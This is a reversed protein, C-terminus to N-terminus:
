PGARGATGGAGSEERHADVVVLVDYTGDGGLLGGLVLVEDPALRASSALEQRLALPVQVVVDVGAGPVRVCSEHLPRLLETHKLTIVVDISTSPDLRARLELATGEETTAVCPDGILDAGIRTIEFAEVFAQQHTTSLAAAGGDRVLLSPRASCHVSGDAIRADLVRQVDARPAVRAFARAGQQDVLSPLSRADVEYQACQLRVFPGTASQAHRDDAAAPAARETGPQGPAHAAAPGLRSVYHVEVARGAPLPERTDRLPAACSAILLAALVLSPRLM